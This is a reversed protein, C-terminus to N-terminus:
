FPLNPWPNEFSSTAVGGIAPTSEIKTMLVGTADVVPGTGLNNFDPGFVSWMYGGGQAWDLQEPTMLDALQIFDHCIIPYRVNGSAPVEDRDYVNEFGNSLYGAGTWNASNDMNFGTVLTYWTTTVINTPYWTLDHSPHSTFISAFNGEGLINGDEGPNNMGRYATILGATTDVVIMQGALTSEPQAAGAVGYQNENWNSVILFGRSPSTPLYRVGSQDGTIAMLDIGGASTPTNVTQQVIDWATLNGTLDFHRCELAATNLDDLNWIYHIDSDENLVNALALFSHVGNGVQFFPFLLTDAQSTTVGTALTAGIAAALIKKKM